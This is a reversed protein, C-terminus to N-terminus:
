TPNQGMASHIHYDSFETDEGLKVGGLITSCPSQKAWMMMMMMREAGDHAFVVAGVHVSGLLRATNPLSELLM